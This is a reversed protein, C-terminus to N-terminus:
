TFVAHHLLLDAALGQRVTNGLILHDIFNHELWHGFLAEDVHILQAARHIEQETIRRSIHGALFHDDVTAPSNALAPPSASPAPGLAVTCDGSLYDRGVASEM